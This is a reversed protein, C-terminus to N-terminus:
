PGPALSDPAFSEVKEPCVTPCPDWNAWFLLGTQPQRFPLLGGVFIVLIGCFSRFADTRRCHNRISSRHQVTPSFAEEKQLM